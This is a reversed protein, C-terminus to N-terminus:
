RVVSVQRIFLQKYMQNEYVHIVCIKFKVFDICLYMIDNLKLRTTVSFIYFGNKFPCM